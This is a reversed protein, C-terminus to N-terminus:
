KTEQVKINGNITTLFLKNLGGNKIPIKVEGNRSQASVEANATEVEINGEFTNIVADGTFDKLYSSGSKTQILVSEYKGRMFISALNSRIEVRMDEPIQLEVEMAFVKHASLKDYGSQLIRKYESKLFLTQDEIRSSLSIDDFYEGDARTSVRIYQDTSTVLSIKYIENSNLVIAEIGAADLIHNVNKQAAMRFSLLLLMVM